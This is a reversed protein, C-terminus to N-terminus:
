IRKRKAINNTPKKEKYISRNFVCVLKNDIRLAFQTGVREVVYYKGRHHANILQENGKGGVVDDVFFMAPIAQNEDFQFYTFYGDDFVQVPKLELDGKYGYNHNLKEPDITHGPIVTQNELQAIAEAKRNMALKKDDPYSFRLAYTSSSNTANKQAKTQGILKFFYTRKNTLVTMNTDPNDDNPKIFVRRGREEFTWANPDGIFHDIYEEYDAFEIMTYRFYHTKLEVVDNESYQVNKIRNDYRTEKPDVAGYVNFSTFFVLILFLFKNM